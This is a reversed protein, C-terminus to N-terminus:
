EYSYTREFEKPIIFESNGRWMDYVDWETTPNALDM